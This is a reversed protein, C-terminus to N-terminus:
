PIQMAKSSPSDRGPLQDRHFQLRGVPPDPLCGGRFGRVSGNFDASASSTGPPRGTGASGPLLSCRCFCAWFLSRELCLVRTVPWRARLILSVGAAMLLFPWIYMLAWLNELPLTHMEILLWVIGAAILFFPWFLSRNRM